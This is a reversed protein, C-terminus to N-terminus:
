ADNTYNEVLEELHDELNTLIAREQIKAQEKTLGYNEYNFVSKLDEIDQQLLELLEFKSM